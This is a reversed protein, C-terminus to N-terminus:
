GAEESVEAEKFGFIFAAIGVSSPAQGVIAEDPTVPVVITNPFGDTIGGIAFRRAGKLTLRKYM